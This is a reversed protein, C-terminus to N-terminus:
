ANPTGDLEANDYHDAAYSGPLWKHASLTLNKVERKFVDESVAKLRAKLNEFYNDYAIKHHINEVKNTDISGAILRRSAENPDMVRTNFFCTEQWTEKVSEYYSILDDCEQATLFNFYEVIDDKYIKQQM